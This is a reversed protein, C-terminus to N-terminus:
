SNKLGSVGAGRSVLRVLVNVLIIILVLLLTV